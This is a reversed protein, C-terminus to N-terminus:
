FKQQAIYDTHWDELIARRVAPDMFALKLTEPQPGSPADDPKRKRTMDSLAQPPAAFLSPPNSPGAKGPRSAPRSGSATTHVPHSTTVAAAPRSAIANSTVAWADTTPARVISASLTPAQQGQLRAAFKDHIPDSFSGWHQASAAARSASAQQQEHQPPLRPGEQPSPRSQTASAAPKALRRWHADQKEIFNHARKNLDHLHDRTVSSCIQGNQLPPKLPRM